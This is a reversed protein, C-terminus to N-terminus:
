PAEAPLSLVFWEHLRLEGSEGRTSATLTMAQYRGPPLDITTYSSSGPDSALALEGTLEGHDGALEVRGGALGKAATELVLVHRLGEGALEWDVLTGIAGEGARFSAVLDRERVHLRRVQGLRRWGDTPDSFRDPPSWRAVVRAPTVAAWSTPRGARPASATLGFLSRMWPADDSRTLQAGDVGEYDVGNGDLRSGVLKARGASPYRWNKHRQLLGLENGAITTNLIVPRSMDKVEMGRACGTIECDFILPTADEGVSIGKDGSDAIVTSVIRPGCAMLDIGDNVSGTISCRLIEGTSMDYDISDANADEFTCDVLDVDARVANLLDDCRMNSAFACHDFVVERANYVCVAGKYEVRELLAGGGGVFSVHEFRSESAGAGQLAFVGWPAGPDVNVIEIPRAEEGRAIVRGRALISVNPELLLTTGPEITLTAEAEIVLDETLRVEGALRVDDMPPVDYQWPHWSLTSPIALDAALEAPEIPEDGYRSHLEPRVANVTLPAGSADIASVFFRYHLPEPVIWAGSARCGPLLWEPRDLTARLGGQETTTVTAIARDGSDEEGNRNHDAHVRVEHAGDVDVQFGRLESGVRGDVLLDVVRSGDALAEDHAAVWADQLMHGLILVNLGLGGMCYFGPFMQAITRGRMREHTIHSSYEATIEDTRQQALKLLRDDRLWGDLTAMTDDLLRPDRLAASWLRHIRADAAPMDLRRLLLDWVIPHLKGSSPDEYWLQNHIPSMHHPDGMVLMLALLRSLEERDFWAMFKRHEEYTSTNLDAVFEFLAQDGIAGPRDNEAIRDWIYPNLFLERPLNKFYDGRLAGDGRFVNGPMRDNRRLFSEDPRELFRHLGYFGGNVFVPVIDSTPCLLDFDSAFSAALHQPIVNKVTLNLRRYGKYLADRKTKISLSKKANTWHVSGDGRLRLEVEHVDNGRTLEAAIWQGWHEAVNSSIASWLERDVRIQIAEHTESEVSIQNRVNTLRLTALAARVRVRWTTAVDGYRVSWWDDYQSMRHYDLCAAGFLFLVVAMPPTSLFVVDLLRLRRWWPLGRRRRASESPRTTPAETDNRPPVM